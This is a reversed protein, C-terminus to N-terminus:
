ITTKVAQTRPLDTPVQVRMYEDFYRRPLLQRGQWIGRNHWFWGIRAFDRVSLKGSGGKFNPKDEFQLAGLRDPHTQIM